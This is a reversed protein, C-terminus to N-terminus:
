LRRDRDIIRTRFQSAALSAFAELAAYNTSSAFPPSTWDLALIVVRFRYRDGDLSVRAERHPRSVNM